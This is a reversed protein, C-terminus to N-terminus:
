AAGGDTLANVFKRIMSPRKTKLSYISGVLLMLPFDPTATERELIRAFKDPTEGTAKAAAKCCAWRSPAPFAQKIEGICVELYEARITSLNLRRATFIQATNGLPKAKRDTMLVPSASASAVSAVMNSRVNM